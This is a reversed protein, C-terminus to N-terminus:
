RDLRGSTAQKAAPGPQDTRSAALWSAIAAVSAATDRMWAYHDAAEGPASASILEVSRACGPLKDLLWDLSAQPVLRDNAMRLGLVPVSLAAMGAELDQAMDPFRYRGSRGSRTWDAIVGRAERGAFGLRRGPYHGLLAAVAPMLFFVPLLGLQMRRPFSRWYPAGGAVTLLGACHQPRQGALLCALQSGLSHGGFLLPVQGEQNLADLVAVLDAELLERYGWNCGRAARLSSSGMGRWEHLWVEIGHGALARGFGIYQRASMGMGPLFLLRHRCDAAPVQILEFEHRDATSIQLVPQSHPM